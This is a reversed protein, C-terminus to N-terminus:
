LQAQRGADIFARNYKLNYFLKIMAHRIVLKLRAGYGLPEDNFAFM